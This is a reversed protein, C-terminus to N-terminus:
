PKLETDVRGLHTGDETMFDIGSAGQVGDDVWTFSSTGFAIGPGGILNEIAKEMPGTNKALKIWSELDILFAPVKEIPIQLIDRLTEIRYEKFNSM